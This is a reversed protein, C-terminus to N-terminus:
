TNSPSICVGVNREDTRYHAMRWLQRKKDATYVANNSEPSEAEEGGEVEGEKEKVQQHHTVTMYTNCFHVMM